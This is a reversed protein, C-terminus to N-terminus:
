YRYIAAVPSSTPMADPPIVYVEANRKLAEECLDDVQETEFRDGSAALMARVRGAPIAVAIEDIQDSALGTGALERYRATREAIERGFAESVIPWAGAHIGDGNEREFNGELGHPLLHPYTNVERYIPHYYGVAALILPAREERLYEHLAHDIRRFFRVLDDKTEEKGPGRGYLVLGGAPGGPHGTVSRDFDPVGLADQLSAPVGRLEVQAAGMPGGEYLSVANQSLALAFYRHNAHLFPILPKVHFSDAVFAGEPVPVPLRYAVQFAGSSFVAFGDLSHEWHTGQELGRLPGLLRDVDGAAAREALASEARSLLARYRTPDQRKEPFRRHTPLYISVCPSEPPELLRRLDETRFTRIQPASPEHRTAM